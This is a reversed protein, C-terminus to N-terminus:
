CDHATWLLAHQSSGNMAVYKCYQAAARRMWETRGGRSRARKVALTRSRTSSCSTDTSSPLCARDSPNHRAARLTGAAACQAANCSVHAGSASHFDHLTCPRESPCPARCRGDAGARSGPGGTWNIAHARVDTPATGAVPAAQPTYTPAQYGQQYSQYAPAEAQRRSGHM